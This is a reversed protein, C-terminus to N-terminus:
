RKAEAKAARAKEYAITSPLWYQQRIAKPTDPHWGWKISWGPEVAVLWLYWDRMEDLTWIPKGNVWTAL